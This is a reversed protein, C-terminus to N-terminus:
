KELQKKIYKCQVEKSQDMIMHLFEQYLKQYSENRIFKTNKEIVAKEREPDFIEGNNKFKYEAVQYVLDMRKEFLGAMERDVRDIEDRIAKM